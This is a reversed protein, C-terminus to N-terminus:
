RSELFGAVLSRMMQQALRGKSHTRRTGFLNLGDWGERDQGNMWLIRGTEADLGTFRAAADRISRYSAGPNENLNPALPTIVDLAWDPHVPSTNHDFRIVDEIPIGADRAIEVSTPQWKYTPATM